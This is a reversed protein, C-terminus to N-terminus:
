ERLRKGDPDYAPKMTVRASTPQGNVRIQIKKDQEALSAPVWALGFGRRLASSYRSSTVRGVPYGDVLVPVGDKPVTENEM